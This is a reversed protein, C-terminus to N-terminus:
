PGKTAQHHQSCEADMAANTSGHPADGIRRPEWTMRCWSVAMNVVTSPWSPISKQM